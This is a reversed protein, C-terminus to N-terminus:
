QGSVVESWLTLMGCGRGDEGRRSAGCLTRVIFLLLFKFYKLFFNFKCYGFM